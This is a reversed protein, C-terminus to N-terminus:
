QQRTYTIGDLVLIKKGQVDKPKDTIKMTKKIPGMGITLSDGTITTSGGTVNTNSTKLDGGGDLYITVFTGDDAVWKGAFAKQDDSLPVKKGCGILAAAMLVSIILVLSKKM